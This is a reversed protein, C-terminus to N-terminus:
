HVYGMERFRQHLEKLMMNHLNETSVKSVSPLENGEKGSIKGAKSEKDAVKSTIKDKDFTTVEINTMALEDMANELGLAGEDKMGMDKKLNTHYEEKHEDLLTINNDEKSKVKVDKSKRDANDDVKIKEEMPQQWPTIHKTMPTYDEYIEQTAEENYEKTNTYPRRPVDYIVDPERPDLDERMTSGRRPLVQPVLLAEHNNPIKSKTLAHVPGEFLLRVDEMEKSDDMDDKVKTYWVTPVLTRMRKKWKWCAALSIMIATMILVTIVINIYSRRKTEKIPPDLFISKLFPLDFSTKTKEKLDDVKVFPFFIISDKSIDMNGRIVEGNEAGIFTEKAQFYDKEMDPRRKKEATIWASCQSPPVTWEDKYLIRKIEKGECTVKMYARDIKPKIMLTNEKSKLDFFKNSCPGMIPNSLSFISKDALKVTNNATFICVDDKNTELTIYGNETEARRISYCMEDPILGIAKIAIKADKCERQTYVVVSYHYVQSPINNKSHNLDFVTELHGFKKYEEILVRFIKRWTMNLSEDDTHTILDQMISNHLMISSLIEEVKESAIMKEQLTELIEITKVSDQYSDEKWKTNVTFLELIATIAPGIVLSGLSILAGIWLALSRKEKSNIKPQPNFSRGAPSCWDHSMRELSAQILTATSLRIKHDKKQQEIERWMTTIYGLDTEENEILIKKRIRYCENGPTQTSLAHTITTIVYCCVAFMFMRNNHM